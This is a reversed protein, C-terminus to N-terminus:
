SHWKIFCRDALWYMMGSVISHNLNFVATDCDAMIPKVIREDVLTDIAYRDFEGLRPQVFRRYEYDIRSLIFAFIEQASAYLSWKALLKVFAEKEDLAFLTEDARGGAELKAELGIIGDAPVRISFHQLAEITEYFHEKSDLEQQLKIKLQAITGLQVHPRADIQYKPGEVKDGGFSGGGIIDRGASAQSQDIGDQM